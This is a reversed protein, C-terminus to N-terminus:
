LVLKWSGDPQAAWRLVEQPVERDTIVEGWVVATTGKDPDVDVVM